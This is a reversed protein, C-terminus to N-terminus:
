QDIIKGDKLHLFSTDYGEVPRRNEMRIILIKSIKLLFNHMEDTAEWGISFSTGTEFFIELHKSDVNYGVWIPVGKFKTDHVMCVKGRANVVLGINMGLPKARAVELEAKSLNSVGTALILDVIPKAEQIYAIELASLGNGNRLLLGAGRNILLRAAAENRSKAAFMLATFGQKDAHDIDSGADLLRVLASIEGRRVTRQLATQGDEDLGDVKAGAVLLATIVQEYDKDTAKGYGTAYILATTGNKATYNVDAGDQLLQTVVYIHGNEAAYFLATAGNKDAQNVNAGATLLRAVAAGHGHRAAETLATLGDNDAHDADFSSFEEPSRSLRNPSENRAGEDAAM